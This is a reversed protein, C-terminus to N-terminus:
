PSYGIGPLSTRWKCPKYTWSLLFEELLVKSLSGNLNVDLGYERLLEILTEMM